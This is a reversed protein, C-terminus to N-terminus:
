IWGEWAQIFGSKVDVVADMLGLWLVCEVVLEDVIWKCASSSVVLSMVSPGDSENGDNLGLIM